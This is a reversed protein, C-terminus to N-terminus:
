DTVDVALDHDGEVEEIGAMGEVVVDGGGEQNEWRQIPMCEMKHKSRWDLAQCGRSCYNVLGCASCRRFEHSRTEPRGCGFYSCNRLGHALGGKGSGFWERLFTNVPHVELGGVNYGFDSLLPCDPSASGNFCGFQDCQHFMPQQQRKMMASLTLMFERANAEILIQRGKPIDQVVGYGDLLCHGLERIADVHGLFAARACLTFGSSLNKQNKAVGSGNFQIVALSYLASPLSKVAAKAMLSMGSARNQLCYFRIMGLTYCAEPNGAVVCRVLFRHASDSWNNAKVGLAKSGAKSLVLPHKGLRNLRKCTVITNIFDSPRSASASLKALIFVVLDDPLGDFHDPKETVTEVCTKQKKRLAM